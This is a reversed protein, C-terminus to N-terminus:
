RSQPLRHLSCPSRPHPRTKAALHLLIAAIEPIAAVALIIPRSRPRHRSRAAIATPRARNVTAERDPCGFAYLAKKQNMTM